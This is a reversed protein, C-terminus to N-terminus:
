ARRQAEMLCGKRGLGFNWGAAALDLIGLATRWESAGQSLLTVGFWVLLGVVAFNGRWM